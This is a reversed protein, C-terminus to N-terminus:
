IWYSHMNINSSIASCCSFCIYLKHCMFICYSGHRFILIVHLM